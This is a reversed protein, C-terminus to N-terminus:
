GLQAATSASAMPFGGFLAPDWGLSMNLVIRDAALDPNVQDSEYRAMATFIAVALEGQTGFNGGRNPDIYSAYPSDPDFVKDGSTGYYRGLALETKTRRDCSMQTGCMLEDIMGYLSIGHPSRLNVGGDAPTTDLVVVDVTASPTGPIALDPKPLYGAAQLFTDRMSPFAIQSLQSEMPFVPKDPILDLLKATENEPQPPFLGPGYLSADAEVLCYKELGQPLTATPVNTTSFLPTVSWNPEQYDACDTGAMKVGIWRRTDFQQSDSAPLAPDDGCTSSLPFPIPKTPPAPSTPPKPKKKPAKLSTEQPAETERGATGQQLANASTENSTRM